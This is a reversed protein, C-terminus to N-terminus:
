LHGTEDYYADTVISFLNSYFPRQIDRKYQKTQDVAKDTKNKDELPSKAEIVVLPIGNVYVVIDPIRSKEAKVKLQNTVM